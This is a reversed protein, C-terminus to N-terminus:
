RGMTISDTADKWFKGAKGDGRGCHRWRSPRTLNCNDDFVESYQDCCQPPIYFVRKKHYPYQLISQPPSGKPESKFTEIKQQICSITSTNITFCEKCM